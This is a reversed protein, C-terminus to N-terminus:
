EEEYSIAVRSTSMHEEICSFFLSLAWFQCWVQIVNTPFWYVEVKWWASRMTGGDEHLKLRQNPSTLQQGIHRLLRAFGFKALYSTLVLGSFRQRKSMRTNKSSPPTQDKGPINKSLVFMEDLLPTIRLVFTRCSSSIIAANCSPRTTLENRLFSMTSTALSIM